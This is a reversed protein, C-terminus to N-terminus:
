IGNFRAARPRGTGDVVWRALPEGAVAVRSCSSGSDMTVMVWGGIGDRLSLEFEGAGESVLKVCPGWQVRIVQVSGWREDAQGVGVGWGRGRKCGRKHLYMRDSVASRLCCVHRHCPPSCTQQTSVSPGPSYAKVRVDSALTARTDRVLRM